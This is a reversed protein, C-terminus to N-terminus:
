YTGLQAVRIWDVYGIGAATGGSRYGIVPVMFTSPFTAAQVDATNLFWPLRQGNLFFQVRASYTNGLTQNATTAQVATMTPCSDTPDFIFGLKVFANAIPINNTSSMPIIGGSFAPVGSNTLIKQLGSTAAVSSSPLQVTGANVNYAAAWDTPNTTARKWFGICGGNGTATKLTNTASFVLSAASTIRTGAADGRDMLGVFLDLNASSVTSVAVRAEYFLQGGFPFGTAPNILRYNGGGTTATIDIATTGGYLGLIDGEQPLNTTDASPGILAGSNNGMWFRWNGISSESNFTGFM